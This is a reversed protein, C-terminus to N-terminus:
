MCTCTLVTIVLNLQSFYCDVIRDPLVACGLCGYVTGFTTGRHYLSPADFNCNVITFINLPYISHIYNMFILQLLLEVHSLFICNFYMLM